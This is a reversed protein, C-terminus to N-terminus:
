LRTALRFLGISPNRFLSFSGVLSVSAGLRFVLSGVRLRAMRFGFPLSRQFRKAFEVLDAAAL